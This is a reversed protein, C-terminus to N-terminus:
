KSINDISEADDVSYKGVKTRRLSTLYAGCGLEQGIDIALSRIYTGSSCKVLISLNPYSYKMIKIEYINVRREPLEFDLGKRALDYARKGGIKIASHKPPTQAIEGTFQTLIKEIEEKPIKKSDGTKKIEGEPDGTESTFGLKLDAEYEKDLKMYKDQNKTEKGLLIVLLGSAFPDLTGAHGAKVKAEKKQSYYSRVKAVVDHSTWGPDKDILLIKNM